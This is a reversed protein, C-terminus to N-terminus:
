PPAWRYTHGEGASGYAVESNSTLYSQMGYKWALYGEVKRADIGWGKPGGPLPHDFIIIDGVMGVVPYDRQRSSFLMLNKGTDDDCALGGICIQPHFNEKHFAYNVGNWHWVGSSGYM